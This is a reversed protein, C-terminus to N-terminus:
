HLKLLALTWDLLLSAESCPNMTWEIQGTIVYTLYQPPCSLERGM